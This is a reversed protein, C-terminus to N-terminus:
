PTREGQGPRLSLICCTLRDETLLIKEYHVANDIGNVLDILDDTNVNENRLSADKGNAGAMHRHVNHLKM